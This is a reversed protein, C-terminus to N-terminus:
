DVNEVRAGSGPVTVFSESEMGSSESLARVMATRVEPAYSESTIAFIAPGSGALSVGLAGSKLAQEKVSDYGPVLAKRYPVSLRDDLHACVGAIDKRAMADILGSALSMNYVADEIPIESPLVARAKRTEVAVDPLLVVISFDPPKLRLIRNSRPDSVATFGGYLAAAVNDYHKTGSVLEEGMAAAELVLQRDDVGLIAAMALAGGVSSAASSGIGSGPKMGKVVTMDFGEDDRGSLEALRSAAHSSCNEEPEEPLTHGGEVKVSRAGDGAARIRIRDVPSEMCLGFSDFGPGFNAITAPSTVEAREFRM